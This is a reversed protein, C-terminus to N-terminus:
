MVLFLIRVMLIYEVAQKSMFLTVCFPHIYLGPNYARSRLMSNQSRGLNTEQLKCGTRSGEPPEHSCYPSFQGIVLIKEVVHYLQIRLDYMTLASTNNIEGRVRSILLGRSPGRRVSPGQFTTVMKHEPAELEIEGSCELWCDFASPNSELCLYRYIPQLETRRTYDEKRKRREMRVCAARAM